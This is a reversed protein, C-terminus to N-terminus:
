LKARGRQVEEAGAKKGDDYLRQLIPRLAEVSSKVDVYSGAPFVKVVVGAVTERAAEEIRDESHPARSIAHDIRGAEMAHGRRVRPVLRLDYRGYTYDMAKRYCKRCAVRSPPAVRRGCGRHCWKRVKM